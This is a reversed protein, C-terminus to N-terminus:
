RAPAVLSLLETLASAVAAPQDLPSLALTDGIPPLVRGNPFLAALRDAHAPPFIPDGASWAIVVPRDFGDLRRALELTLGPTMTAAARRLDHRNARSRWLPGMMREAEEPDLQRRVLRGFTIPLRRLPGARMVQAVLWPAGPLQLAKPFWRFARPPFNEFADCSLLLLGAVRDPHDAVFQQAIAGGTDNGVVIAQGVGLHDLVAVLMRALAPLSLDADPEIRAGHAGLPLDVLVATIGDAIGDAHAVVDDWVHGNMLAPHVFLVPTGGGAVRVRLQGGSVPVFATRTTM